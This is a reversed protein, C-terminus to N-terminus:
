LKKDNTTNQNPRPGPGRGGGGGGGSQSRRHIASLIKNPADLRGVPVNIYKQKDVEAEDVILFVKKTGFYNEFRRRKKPHQNLLEQM